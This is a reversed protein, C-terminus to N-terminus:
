DDRALLVNFSPKVLSGAIDYRSPPPGDPSEAAFRESNSMMVGKRSGGVKTRLLPTSVNYDGPGVM